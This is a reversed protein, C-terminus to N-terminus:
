RASDIVLFLHLAIEKGVELLQSVLFVGLTHYEEKNVKKM